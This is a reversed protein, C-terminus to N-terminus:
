KVEHIIFNVEIDKASASDYELVIRMGQYLDADYESKRSYEDKKVNLAKSFQNFQYNPVGSYTGAATDLIKLNVKDKKEGSFVEIENFKVTPYPIVFEKINMGAVLSYEKGEPRSYLSKGEKTKKDAFPPRHRMPKNAYPKLNTEFSSIDDAEHEGIEAMINLGGDEIAMYYTGYARVYRVLHKIGIDGVYAQFESYPILLM